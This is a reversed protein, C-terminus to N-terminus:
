KLCARVKISVDASSLFKGNKIDEIGKDIKRKHFDSLTNDELEEQEFDLGLSQLLNEVEVIDRKSKPTFTFQRKNLIKTEM